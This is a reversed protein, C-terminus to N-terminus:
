IIVVRIPTTPPRIVIRFSVTGRTTLNTLFIFCHRCRVVPLIFELVPDVIIYIFFIWKSYRQTGVTSIYSLAKTLPSPRYKKMIRGLFKKNEHFKPICFSFQYYPVNKIYLFYFLILFLVIPRRHWNTRQKVYILFFWISLLKTKYMRKYFYQFPSNVGLLFCRVELSKMSKM